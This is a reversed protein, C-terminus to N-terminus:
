TAISNSTARAFSREWAALVLPLSLKTRGSALVPVSPCETTLLHRASQLSNRGNAVHERPPVRSSRAANRRGNEDNASVGFLGAQYEGAATVGDRQDRDVVWGNSAIRQAPKKLRRCNSREISRRCRR